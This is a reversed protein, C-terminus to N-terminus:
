LGQTELEKSVMMDLRPDRRRMGLDNFSAGNGSDDGTAGNSGAGGLGGGHSGQVPMSTRRNPSNAASNGSSVMIRDPVRMRNSIEATFRADEYATQVVGDGM